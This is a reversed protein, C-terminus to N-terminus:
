FPIEDDFENVILEKSLEEEKKSLDAVICETTLIMGAISAANQLGSRTVKAPDVIGASFMDVYEGTEVDYGFPNAQSIVEDVIETGNAGANEAITMLPATLSAEVINAGILEEGNLNKEAWGELIPALHALTAGGGAVIGEEVAARTANLADELRGKKDKIEAETAAGVKIVAVGGALKALREQLKEKDYTSDTEDIQRSILKIRENLAKQNDNNTIIITSDKTTIIKKANGLLRENVNKLNLGEDETILTGNTLIAIDELMAKRRDGFGPAKVAAVNLAGRSTNVVLTSLAEGEVDEAIIMVSKGNKNIEELLPLLDQISSIKEDTLLVYPEELVAEMSEKDTIFYPSLYGRDFQIGETVELETTISKGEELSIVGNKGVKNLASIILDPFEENYSTLFNKIDIDEEISESVDGIQEVLFETAKDMGKKLTIANAGEAVNKLGTKVMAQALVTATTSGDGTEAHTKLAAQRILAVGTNEIPDELEIEKAITVGDNTIRPAGFRNELVVNRGKPGLTVAVSEALIDIGKELGGRAPEHCVVNRGKQYAIGVLNHNQYVPTGTKIRKKTDLTYDPKMIIEEGGVMVKGIKPLATTTIVDNLEVDLNLISVNFDSYNMEVEATIISKGGLQIKIKKESTLQNIKDGLSSVLAKSPSLLILDKQNLVM